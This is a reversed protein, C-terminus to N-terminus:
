KLQESIKEIKIRLAELKEQNKKFIRPRVFLWNFLLFAVTVGFLLVTYLMNRTAPEYLYLVLGTSCLLMMIGQMRTYYRIQNIRTQEIFKLFEKNTRDDLQYFRKMSMVNNVALFVGTSAILLGGIYTTVFNASGNFTVVIMLLTLLCAFVIVSWKKKLRQSRFRKVIQIMEASTPLSSTNATHWLTKLDTLNDM